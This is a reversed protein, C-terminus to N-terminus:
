VSAQPMPTVLSVDLPDPKPDAAAGLFKSNPRELKMRCAV